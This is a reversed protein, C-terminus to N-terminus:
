LRGVNEVSVSEVDELEAIAEEVSETGGESDPVIVSVILAVLGFAVDQHEVGRLRSGGPLANELTDELDDLDVEPSAPMVKITAAVDGM